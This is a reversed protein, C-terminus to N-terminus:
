RPEMVSVGGCGGDCRLVRLNNGDSFVGDRRRRNDEELGTVELVDHATDVLLCPERPEEVRESCAM